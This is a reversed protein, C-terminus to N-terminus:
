WFNLLHSSVMEIYEDNPKSVILPMAIFTIDDNHAVALLDPRGDRTLCRSAFHVPNRKDSTLVDSGLKAVDDGFFIFDPVKLDGSPIVKYWAPYSSNNTSVFTMKAGHIDVIAVYNDGDLCLCMLASSRNIKLKKIADGNFYIPKTLGHPIHVHIRVYALAVGNTASFVLDCDGYPTIVLNHLAPKTPDKGCAMAVRQIRSVDANRIEAILHM